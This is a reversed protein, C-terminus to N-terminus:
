SSLRLDETVGGCPGQKCVDPKKARCVKAYIHGGLRYPSLTKLAVGGDSNVSLCIVCVYLEVPGVWM